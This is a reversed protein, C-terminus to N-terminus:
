KKDGWKEGEILKFALYEQVKLPQDLFTDHM